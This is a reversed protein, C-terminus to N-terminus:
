VRAPAKSDSLAPKDDRPILIAILQLPDIVRHRNAYRIRFSLAKQGATDFLVSHDVDNDVVFLKFLINDRGNALYLHDIKKRGLIKSSNTIAKIGIAPRALIEGANGTIINRGSTRVAFELLIGQLQGVDVQSVLKGGHDRMLPRKLGTGSHDRGGIGNKGFGNIQFALKNVM